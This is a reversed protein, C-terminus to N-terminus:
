IPKLQDQVLPRKYINSSDKQNRNEAQTVKSILLLSKEGEIYILIYICIHTHTHTYLINKKAVETHKKTSHSISSQQM